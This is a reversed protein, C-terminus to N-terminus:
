WQQPHCESCYKEFGFSTFFDIDPQVEEKNINYFRFMFMAQGDYVFLTYRVPNEYQTDQITYQYLEYKKSNAAFETKQTAIGLDHLYEEIQNKYDSENKATFYYTAYYSSEKETEVSFFLCDPYHTVGKIEMAKDNRTPQYLNDLDVIIKDGNEDEEEYYRDIHFLEHLTFDKNIFADRMDALSSFSYSRKGACYCDGFEDKYGQITLRYGDDTKRVRYVKEESCVFHFLMILLLAISFKKINIWIEEKRADRM